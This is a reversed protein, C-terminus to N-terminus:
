PRIWLYLFFSIGAIASDYNLKPMIILLHGTILSRQSTSETIKVEDHLSMQFIKNKITVRVYNPQVDVEM